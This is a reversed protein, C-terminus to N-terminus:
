FGLCACASVPVSVPVGQLCTSASLVAECGRARAFSVRVSLSVSLMWLAACVRVCLGHLCVRSCTSLCVSLCVLVPLCGFHGVCLYAASLCTSLHVSLCILWWELLFVWLCKSIRVCGSPCVHASESPCCVCHTQTLSLSSAGSGTGTWLWSVWGDFCAGQAAESPQKMEWQSSTINPM